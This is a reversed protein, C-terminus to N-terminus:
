CQAEVRLAPLTFYFRGPPFRLADRSLSMFLDGRLVLQHSSSIGSIQEQAREMHEALSIVCFSGQHYLFRSAGDKRLNLESM